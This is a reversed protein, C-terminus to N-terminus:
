LATKFVAWIKNINSIIEERFDKDLSGSMLTTLIIVTANHMEKTFSDKSSWDEKSFFRILFYGFLNEYGEVYDGPAMYQRELSSGIDDKIVAILSTACNQQKRKRNYRAGTDRVKVPNKLESITNKVISPYKELIKVYEEFTYASEMRKILKKRRRKEKEDDIAEIEAM